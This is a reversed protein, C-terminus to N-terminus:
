LITCYYLALTMGPLRPPPPFRISRPYAHQSWVQSQCDPMEDDDDEHM